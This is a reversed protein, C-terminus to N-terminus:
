GGYFCTPRGKVGPKVRFLGGAHPQEALEQESLGTRATTIYLEDYNSGGFTCSTARAAPVRISDIKVGSAPDWRSVQWGDWQAIWIMGEEDVTMGDPLGEGEPITVVTRPRDIAGTEPSYDYATVRRTPSDIYYMTRGDPSWALGNSTTIGDAAMRLTGDPELCYLAGSPSNEEMHMTGAWFRGAEDCKGDNFRNGPKGSEPDILKTLRQTELDLTHFGNELALVLGGRVRPVAAGVRQALQITRNTGRAPDYWHVRKGLIDVWVLQASRHDWAPGEGLEAKGDWVLELKRVM